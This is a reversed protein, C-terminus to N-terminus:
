FLHDVELVEVKKPTQNKLKANSNDYPFSESSKDSESNRGNNSSINSSKFKKSKFGSISEKSFSEGKNKDVIQCINELRAEFNPEFWIQINDYQSELPKLKPYTQKNQSNEIWSQANTYLSEISNDNLPNNDLIEYAIYESDNEM